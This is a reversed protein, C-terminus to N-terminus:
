YISRKGFHSHCFIDVGLFQLCRACLVDTWEVRRVYCGTTFFSLVIQNCRLFLMYFNSHFKAKEFNGINSRLGNIAIKKMLYFGIFNNVFSILQNNEVYNSCQYKESNKPIFLVKKWLISCPLLFKCFRYCVVSDCFVEKEDFIIM